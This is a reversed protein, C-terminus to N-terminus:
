FILYVTRHTPYTNRASRLIRYMEDDQTEDEPAELLGIGLSSNYAHPALPAPGSRVACM